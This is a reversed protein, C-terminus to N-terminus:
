PWLYFLTGFAPRNSHVTEYALLLAFLLMASRGLWVQLHFSPFVLLGAFCSSLSRHLGVPHASPLCGRWALSARLHVVVVHPLSGAPKRTKHVEPPLAVNHCSCPTCLRAQATPSLGLVRWRPVQSNSVAREVITLLAAAALVAYPALTSLLPPTLSDPGTPAPCSAPIGAEAGSCIASCFLGAACSCAPLQLCAAVAVRPM